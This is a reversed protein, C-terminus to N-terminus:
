MADGAAKIVDVLHGQSITTKTIERRAWLRRAELVSEVNRQFKAPTWGRLRALGSCTIDVFGLAGDVMGSNKKFCHCHGFCPMMSGRGNWQSCKATGRWANHSVGVGEEDLAVQAAALHKESEEKTLECRWRTNVALVQGRPSSEDVPCRFNDWKGIPAM